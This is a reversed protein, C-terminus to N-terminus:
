MFCSCFLVCSELSIIIVCNLFLTILIMLLKIVLLLTWFSLTCVYTCTRLNPMSLTENTGYIIYELLVQPTIMLLNTCVHLNPMSLTEDYLICWM